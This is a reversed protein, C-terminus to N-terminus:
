QFFEGIAKRIERFLKKDLIALRTGFRKTDILKIQSIIVFADKGEVQGITM